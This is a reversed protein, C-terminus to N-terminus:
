FFRRGLQRFKRGDARSPFSFYTAERDENPLRAVTGTEIQQIVELLLETGAKKCRQVLNAWSDDPRIEVERCQLIDGRDLKSSLDHVTVATHPEQNLLVWFNPMLGRYKPLPSSHVNIAGAPFLRRLRRGIVQPCSLSVLLDARLGAITEYAEDSSLRWISFHPLGFARGVQSVSFFPGGRGPRVIRSISWNRAVQMGLRVCGWLGFLDVHRRMARGTSGHTSLPPCTVIGALESRRARCLVALADPIFLYDDQTLILIRM